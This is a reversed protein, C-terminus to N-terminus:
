DAHGVTSTHVVIFTSHCDFLRFQFPQWFSVYNPRCNVLRLMRAAEQEVYYTTLLLSKLNIRMSVVPLFVLGFEPLKTMPIGGDGSWKPYHVSPEARTRYQVSPEARTQVFYNTKRIDPDGHKTIVDPRVDASTLSVDTRLDGSSASSSAPLIVRKLNTQNVEFKTCRGGTLGGRFCPIDCM